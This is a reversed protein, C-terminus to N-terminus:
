PTRGTERALFAAAKSLIEREEELVRVRRRLRLLENHEDLARRVAPDEEVELKRAWKGIAQGTVGLDRGVSQFTNGPERALRVAEVRFERSYSPKRGM